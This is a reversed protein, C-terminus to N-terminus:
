MEPEASQSFQSAIEARPDGESASSDGDEGYDSNPRKWDAQSPRERRSDQQHDQTSEAAGVKEGRDGCEADEGEVGGGQKGKGAGALSEQTALLQSEAGHVQTVQSVKLAQSAIIAQQERLQTAHDEQMQKILDMMGSLAQNTAGPTAGAVKGAVVPQKEEAASTVDKPVIAPPAVTALAPKEVKETKVPAKVPRRNYLSRQKLARASAAAKAKSEKLEDRLEMIINMLSPDPPPAAPNAVAAVTTDKAPSQAMASSKIKFVDTNDFINASSQYAPDPATAAVAKKLSPDPRTIAAVPVTPKVTHALYFPHSM